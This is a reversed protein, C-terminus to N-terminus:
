FVRVADAEIRKGRRPHIGQRTMLDVRTGLIAQLRVQVGLLDFLTFGQPRALDVFVDVDSADRAEDRAVSGFLYLAGIGVEHFEPEHQRLLSVVQDRNM